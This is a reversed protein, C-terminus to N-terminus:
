AAIDAIGSKDKFASLQEDSREADPMFKDLGVGAAAWAAKAEETGVAQSLRRLLAAIVKAAEGGSVLMTQEGEPPEEMDAELIHHAVTKLDAVKAGVLDGLVEGIQVPALPVDVRTDDLHNLLQRVGQDLGEPSIVSEESCGPGM